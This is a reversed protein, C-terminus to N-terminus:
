ENVIDHIRRVQEISLTCRNGYPSTANAIESLKMDKEEYDHMAQVSPFLDYDGAIDCNQILYDREFSDDLEFRTGRESIGIIVTVYKKGVSKVKGITYGKSWRAKNNVHKLAVEQGKKFDEKTLLIDDM